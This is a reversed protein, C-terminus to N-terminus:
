NKLFTHLANEFNAKMAPVDIKTYVKITRNLNDHPTVVEMEETLEPYALAELIAVDWM